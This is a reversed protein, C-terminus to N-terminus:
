WRRSPWPLVPTGNEKVTVAVPYGAGLSVFVPTRGVPTVNVAALPFNLPM